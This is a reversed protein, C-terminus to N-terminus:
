GQQGDGWGYEGNYANGKTCTSFQAMAAMPVILPVCTVAGNEGLTFTVKVHTSDVATNEGSNYCHLTYTGDANKVYKVLPYSQTMMTSYLSATTGNAVLAMDYSQGAVTLSGWYTGYLSKQEETEVTGGNGSGGSSPNACSAMSFLLCLALAGTFAKFVKKLNM